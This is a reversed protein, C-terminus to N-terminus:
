RVRTRARYYAIFGCLGLIYGVGGLIDRFGPQQTRTQQLISKVSGLRKELEEEVFRRIVVEDAKLVKAVSSTTEAVIQEKAKVVVGKEQKVAGLYDNAQLLWEARHGGPVKAIITLDLREKKAENPTHFSFHGNHDVITTFLVQDNGANEVIIVADKPPRGNGYATEGIIMDGQGYAIVRIQHASSQIATLFFVLTFCCLFFISKGISNM